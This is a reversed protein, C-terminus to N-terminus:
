YNQTWQKGGSSNSVDSKTQRTISRSAAVKVKQLSSLVGKLAIVTAEAQVQLYEATELINLASEPWKDLAKGYKYQGRKLEWKSKHKALLASSEALAVQSDIYELWRCAQVHLIDATPLDLQNPAGVLTPQADRPQPPTALGKTALIDQAANASLSGPALEDSLKLSM